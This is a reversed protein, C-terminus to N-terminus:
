EMMKRIIKEAEAAGRNNLSYRRGKKAGAFNVFEDRTGMIRDIRDINIGSQKAAKMLTTGTVANISKMRDYGYLIVLLADAAPKDTKPIALLSVTDNVKFVRSLTDSSVSPVNFSSAAAASNANAGEASTDSSPTAPAPALVPAAKPTAKSVADLFASFQANILDSQGEADFEADGLKIKIRHTTEM